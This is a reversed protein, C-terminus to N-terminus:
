EAVPRLSSLCGLFIDSAAGKNVSCIVALADCRAFLRVPRVFSNNVASDFAVGVNDGGILSNSPLFTIMPVKGPPNNIPIEGVPTHGQYLFLQALFQTGGLITTSYFIERWGLELPVQIRTLEGTAGAGIAKSGDAWHVQENM